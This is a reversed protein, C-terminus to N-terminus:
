SKSLCVTSIRVQLDLLVSEELHLQTIAYLVMTYLDLLRTLSADQNSMSSVIIPQGLIQDKVLPQEMLTKSSVESHFKTDLRKILM